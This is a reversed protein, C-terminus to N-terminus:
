PVDDASGQLVGTFRGNKGKVQYRVNCSYCELDAIKTGAPLGGLEDSECNLCYLNQEAWTETCLRAIQSRSVFGEAVKPDFFPSFVPQAVDTRRYVGPKLFELFGQDRLIQLSQRIKAEIFRNDPYHKSFYDRRAEVERLTFTRPLNEIVDRVLTKWTTPRNRLSAGGYNVPAGNPLRGGVETFRPLTLSPMRVSSNWLEFRQQEDGAKSRAADERMGRVIQEKAHHRSHSWM